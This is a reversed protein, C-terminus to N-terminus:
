SGKQVYRFVWMFFVFLGGSYVEPPRKAGIAAGCYIFM